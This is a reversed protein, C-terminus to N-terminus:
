CKLLFQSSVTAYITFLMWLPFVFEFIDLLLIKKNIRKRKSFHQKKMTETYYVDNPAYKIKWM